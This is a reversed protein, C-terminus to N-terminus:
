SVEKVAEDVLNANAQLVKWQELTLAIGSVCLLSAHTPINPSRCYAIRGSRCSLLSGSAICGASLFTQCLNNSSFKTCEGKKGPLQEGNKEYYERISVLTQNKFKSVTVKKNGSLQVLITIANPWRNPLSLNDAITSKSSAEM